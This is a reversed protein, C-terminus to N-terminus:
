KRMSLLSAAGLLLVLVDSTLVFAFMIKEQFKLCVKTSININTEFLIEICFNTLFKKSRDLCFRLQSFESM